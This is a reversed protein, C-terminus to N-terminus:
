KERTEGQTSWPVSGRRRAARAVLYGSSASAILALMWILLMKCAAALSEAGPLLGLVILGLGLNDAKTLAHIRTYVDPFRLLGVSGVLFFGAGVIILILQIAALLNM